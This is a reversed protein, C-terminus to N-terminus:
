VFSSGRNTERSLFSLNQFSYLKHRNQLLSIQKLYLSFTRPSFFLLLFFTIIRQKLTVSTQVVHERPIRFTSDVNIALRHVLPFCSLNSSSNLDTLNYVGHLTLIKKHIKKLGNLIQSSYTKM